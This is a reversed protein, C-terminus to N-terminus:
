QPDLTSRQWMWANSPPAPTTPVNSAPIPAQYPAPTAAAVRVPASAKAQLERKLDAVTEQSEKLQAKLAENEQNQRNAFLGAAVLLLCLLWKMAPLRAIPAIERLVKNNCARDDCHRPFCFVASKPTRM